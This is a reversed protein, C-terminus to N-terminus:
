CRSRTPIVDLAARLPEIAERPSGPVNLVTSEGRTGTVGRSLRGLASVIHMSEALGSAVRNLM